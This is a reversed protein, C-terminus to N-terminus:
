LAYRWVAPLAAGREPERECGDHDLNSGLHDGFLYSLTTGVRMAVRQSGAYYYEVGTSGGTEVRWEYYNGIYLTTVGNVVSKVRSGDGDYTYEGVTTQNKEVEM